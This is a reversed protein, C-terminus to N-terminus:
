SYRERLLNMMHKNIDWQDAIAQHTFPLNMMYPFPGFEPTITINSDQKRKLEVIKDWCGLHFQL